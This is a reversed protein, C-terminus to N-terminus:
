LWPCSCLGARDSYQAPPTSGTSPAQSPHEGQGPFLLPLAPVLALSSPAAPLPAWHHTMGDRDGSFKGSAAEGPRLQPWAFGGRNVPASGRPPDEGAGELLRRPSMLGRRSARLDLRAEAAPLFPTLVRSVEALLVSLHLTVQEEGWLRTGLRRWLPARPEPVHPSM